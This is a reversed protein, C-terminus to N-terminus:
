LGNSAEFDREGLGIRFFFGGRLGFNMWINRKGEKASGIGQCKYQDTKHSGVSSCSHVM